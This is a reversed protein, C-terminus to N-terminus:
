VSPGGTKGPKGTNTKSKQSVNITRGAAAKKNQSAQRMAMLQQYQRQHAQQVMQNHRAQMSAVYQNSTPQMQMQNKQATMMAQAKGAGGGGGGGAKSGSASGGSSGGGSSGGGKNCAPSSAALGFVAVVALLGTKLSWLAAVSQFMRKNM